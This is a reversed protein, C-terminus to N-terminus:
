GIVDISILAAIPSFIKSANGSVFTSTCLGSTNILTSIRWFILIYETSTGPGPPIGRPVAPLPINNNDPPISLGTAPYMIEFRPTVM